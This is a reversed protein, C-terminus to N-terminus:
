NLGVGGFGCVEPNVGAVVTARTLVGERGGAADDLALPPSVLLGTSDDIAAYAVSVGQQYMRRSFCIPPYPIGVVDCAVLADCPRIRRPIM